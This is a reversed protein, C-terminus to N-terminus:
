IIMAFLVSESSLSIHIRRLSIGESMFDVIRRMMDRVREYELRNTMINDIEDADYM